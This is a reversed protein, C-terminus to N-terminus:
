LPFCTGKTIFGAFGDVTPKQGPNPQYHYLWMKSKIDSSLTKLDDYHAHVRSHFPSTECDQFIIDAQQYFKEIQRPCFQTDTTLFARYDGGKIILGYSNVIGYGNMVHVTQIPYYRLSHERLRFRDNIKLPCVQFYSELTLVSGEISQMGGKLSDWLGSLLEGVIYLRPRECDQDFYTSFGLWELGGIHDAHLHSIYIDTIDRHSYGAEKLSFRADGGCDILLNRNGDSVIMNSQWYDQTTFASGVGLFQINM